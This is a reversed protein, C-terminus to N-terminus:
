PLSPPVALSVIGSWVPGVAWGERRKGAGGGGVFCPCASQCPIPSASADQPDPNMTSIRQAETFTEESVVGGGPMWWAKSIGAPECRWQRKPAVSLASGAGADSPPTNPVDPAALCCEEPSLPAPLQGAQLMSLAWGAHVPCERDHVGCYSSTNIPAAWARNAMLFEEIAKNAAAAGEKEGAGPGLVVNPQLEQVWGAADPHLRGKIDVFTCTRYADWYGAQATLMEYPAEGHDCTRLSHCAPAQQKHLKFLAPLLLRMSERPADLASFDSTMYVDHKLLTRAREGLGDSM